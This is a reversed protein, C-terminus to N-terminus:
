LTQYRNKYNAPIKDCPRIDGGRTAALHYILKTKNKNWSQNCHLCRMMQKKKLDDYWLEAMADIWVNDILDVDVERAGANIGGNNGGTESM